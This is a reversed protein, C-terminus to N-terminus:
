CKGMEVRYENWNYYYKKKINLVQDLKYAYPKGCQGKNWWRINLNISKSDESAVSLVEIFVDMFRDHIYLGPKFM